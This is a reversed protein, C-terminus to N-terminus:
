LWCDIGQVGIYGSNVTLVSTPTLVQVTGGKMTLCNAGGLGPVQLPPSDYASAVVTTLIIPAVAMASALLARRRINRMM